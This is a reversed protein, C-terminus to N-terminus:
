ATGASKTAYYARIAQDESVTPIRNLHIGGYDRINANTPGGVQYPDTGGSTLVVGATSGTTGNVNANIAASTNSATYIVDSGVLSAGTDVDLQAGGFSVTVMGLDTQRTFILPQRFNTNGPGTGRNSIVHPFAAPLSITRFAIAEYVNVSFPVTGQYEYVDNVGDMEIWYYTGDTQYTGRAAASPTLFHGGIQGKNNIRRVPDGASTVPVTAAADQFLTSLDSPDRWIALAPGLRGIFDGQLQNCATIQIDFGLGIM